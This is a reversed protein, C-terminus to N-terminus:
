VTLSAEANTLFESSTILRQEKAAMNHRLTDASRLFVTGVLANIDTDPLLGSMIQM